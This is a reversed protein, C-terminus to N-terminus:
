SADSPGRAVYHGADIDAILGPQVPTWGLLEQTIASSAPADMGFFRGVWGFHEVARDAPISAVPVDLARGIAEAIVRARIGEEATAHLASGAPADDVALCVLRAADLRHIAPWRNAGDDVYGSVGRERAIRVLTAVFGHDGPGHVTPAFRVVVSRVGRGALGLAAAACASRPHGGPDPTDWETAVRGPALGMTGSAILLPRDTGGLAEGMANIAALDTKAAAEMDSFDHNYALHVVGDSAAAGAALSDPDDLDGRWVDARLAAVTTAAADTRAMGVVQHGAAQLEPVVASGIWGSAGTVFIRM